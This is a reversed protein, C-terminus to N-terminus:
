LIEFCEKFYDKIKYSGSVIFLRLVDMFYRRGFEVRRKRVFIKRRYIFCYKIIVMSM